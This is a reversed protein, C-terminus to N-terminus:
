GHRPEAKGQLTEGTFPRAPSQQMDSEPCNQRGLCRPASVGMSVYVGLMEELGCRAPKVWDAKVCLLAGGLPFPASPVIVIHYDIDGLRITESTPLLAPTAASLDDGFYCIVPTMGGLKDPNRDFISTVQKSADYLTGLVPIRQMRKHLYQRWRRGVGRQVLLGVCFVLLVTGVLGIVYATIECAVVSMGVSRLMNGFPSAPGVMDHLLVIVWALAALTLALPLIALVGSIFVLGIWHARFKVENAAAPM